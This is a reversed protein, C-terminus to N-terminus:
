TGALEAIGAVDRVRALEIIRALERISQDMVWHVPRRTM